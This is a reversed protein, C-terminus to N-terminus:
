LESECRVDGSPSWQRVAYWSLAGFSGRMELLLFNQKPVRVSICVLKLRRVKAVNEQSLEDAGVEAGLVELYLINVYEDDSSEPFRSWLSSAKHIAGIGDVIACVCTRLTDVPIGKKVPVVSSEGDDANRIFM